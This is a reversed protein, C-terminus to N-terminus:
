NDGEKKPEKKFSEKVESNDSRKYERGSNDSGNYSEYTKPATYTGTNSSRYSNNSRNSRKSKKKSYKKGSK